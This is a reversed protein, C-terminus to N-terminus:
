SASEASRMRIFEPFLRRAEDLRHLKLLARCRLLVLVARDDSRADAQLGDILELARAARGDALCALAMTRRIGAHDPAASAALELLELARGPEGHVLHLYGLTHLLDRQADSVTM